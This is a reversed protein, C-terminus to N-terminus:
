ELIRKLPNKWRYIRYFTYLMAPQLVVLPLWMEWSFTPEAHDTFVAHSQFVQWTNTLIAAGFFNNAFHYGMGLELGDDFHALLGLFVGSICYYAMAFYGFVDVEPNGMHMFGFLLAIILVSIGAKGIVSTLGQFLFGRYLIDEFATQIPLLTISILLLPLFHGMSLNFSVPAGSAKGLLLFVMQFLFWLGFAFYFRQWDFKKRSTIVSLIPRKLIFKVSLLLAGLGFAFPLLNIAFRVNSKVENLTGSAEMLQAAFLMGVFFAGFTFVITLIFQELSMPAGGSGKAFSM